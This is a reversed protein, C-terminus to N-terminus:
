ALSGIAMIVACTPPVFMRGWRFIREEHREDFVFWLMTATMNLILCAYVALMVKDARTLYATAPLAQTLAFHFLVAAALMPAASNVRVDFESRPLWMGSLSILVIVLAPVFVTFAASTAFRRIGLAVKYRAYYLDDNDFRDPYYHNLTRAKIYEVEWGPVEFGVDVHTHDSDPLIRLRDVGAASDEVEITLEQTDFPYQRLDVNANFTGTYRFLKFTPTDALVDKRSEAGNTFTLNVPQMPRDSTLSLFFDAEFTGERIDFKRVDNLLTGFRVNAPSKATPDSFPSRFTGGQQVPVGGGPGTVARAIPAVFPTPSPPPPPPPSADPPADRLAAAPLPAGVQSAAVGAGDEATAKRAVIAVLALLAVLLSLTVRPGLVPRLM